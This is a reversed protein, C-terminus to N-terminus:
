AAKAKGNPRVRRRHMQAKLWEVTEADGVDRGLRHAWPLGRRKWHWVTSKDVPRGVVAEVLEYLPYWQETVFAARLAVVREERTLGTMETLQDSV